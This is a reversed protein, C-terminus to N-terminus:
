PLIIYAESLSILPVHVCFKNAKGYPTYTAKFNLYLFLLALVLIICNAVFWSFVQKETMDYDSLILSM